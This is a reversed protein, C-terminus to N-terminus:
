RRNGRTGGYGVYEIDATIFGRQKRTDKVERFVYSGSAILKLPTTATYTVKGEQNDTFTSSNVTITHQSTYNESNTTLDATEKDTLLYYTPTHVAFGLRIYEKPKYIFGLKLNVGVGTTNLYDNHEFFDFHNTTDTTPDSERFTTTRNYSVFPIGISGGLYLRDEWRM